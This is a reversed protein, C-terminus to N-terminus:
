GTSRSTQCITRIRAVTLIRRAQPRPRWKIGAAGLRQLLLLAACGKGMIDAWVLGTPSPAAYGLGAGTAAYVLSQVVKANAADRFREERTMVVGLTQVVGSVLLGLGLVVGGFRLNSLTSSWGLWRAGEFGAAAAVAVAVNVFLCLYLIARLEAASRCRLLAIEYRFAAFVSGVSIVSLYVQVQGFAEVPLLRAMVPLALFGVVQAIVMGRLLLSANRIMSM